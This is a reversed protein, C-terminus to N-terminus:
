VDVDSEQVVTGEILASYTASITVKIIIFHHAIAHYLDININDVFFSDSVIVNYLISSSVKTPIEILLVSLNLSM